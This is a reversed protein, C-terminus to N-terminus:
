NGNSHAPVFSASIKSVRACRLPFPPAKTRFHVIVFLVSQPLYQMRCRQRQCNRQNFRRRWKHLPPPGAKCRMRPECVVNWKLSKLWCTSEGRPRWTHLDPGVWLEHADCPLQISLVFRYLNILVHLWCLGTACVNVYLSALMTRAEVATLTREGREIAWTHQFMAAFSFPDVPVAMAPLTTAAASAAAALSSSDDQESIAVAAVEAQAARDAANVYAYYAPLGGRDLEQLARHMDLFEPPEHLMHCREFGQPCRCYFFCSCLEIIVLGLGCGHCGMPVVITLPSCVFDFGQLTHQLHCYGSGRVYGHQYVNGGSGILKVYAPLNTAQLHM